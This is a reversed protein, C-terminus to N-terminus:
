CGFSQPMEIHLPLSALRHTKIHLHLISLSETSRSWGINKSRNPKLLHTSDAPLSSLITRNGWFSSGEPQLKFTIVTQRFSHRDNVMRPFHLLLHTHKIRSHVSIKWSARHWSTVTASLTNALEKILNTNLYVYFRQAQARMDITFYETFNSRKSQNKIFLHHM